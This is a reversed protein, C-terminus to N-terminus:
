SPYISFVQCDASAFEKVALEFDLEYQFAVLLKGEGIWIKQLKPLLALINNEPINKWFQM